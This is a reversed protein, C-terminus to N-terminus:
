GFVRIAQTATTRCLPCARGVVANAHHACVCRHGCPVLALLNSVCMSELCICCDGKKDAEQRQELEERQRQQRELEQQRQPRELEERQRQRQQRELEERQLQQCVLEQQRELEQQRQQRDPLYSRENQQRQPRKVYVALLCCLVIIGVVGGIVGGIVDGSVKVNGSVDSTPMQQQLAKVNGSVESTSTQKQTQTAV